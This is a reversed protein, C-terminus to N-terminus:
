PKDPGRSLDRFQRKLDDLERQLERYRREFDDAPAAAPRAQPAPDLARVQVVLDRAEQESVKGRYSPMHSGKGDLISVLLEADSRSAQWHHSSFDPIESFHRRGTRGAGDDGHCRACRSQLPGGPARREAGQPGVAESGARSPAPRAASWLGLSLAALGAVGLRTSRDARPHASM